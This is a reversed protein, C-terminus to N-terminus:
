KELEKKMKLHISITTRVKWSHKVQFPGEISFFIDNLMRKKRKFTSSFLVSWALMQQTYTSARASIYVIIIWEIRISFILFPIVSNHEAFYVVPVDSQHESSIWEHHQFDASVAVAVAAISYPFCVVTHIHQSRCVFVKCICASDCAPNHTRTNTTAVTETDVRIKRAWIFSPKNIMRLTSPPIFKFCIYQVNEANNSDCLTCGWIRIRWMCECVCVSEMPPGRSDVLFARWLKLECLLRM